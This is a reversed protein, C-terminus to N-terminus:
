MGYVRNGIYFSPFSELEKLFQKMDNITFVLFILVFSLVVASILRMFVFVSIRFLIFGLNQKINFFLSQVTYYNCRYWTIKVYLIFLVKM